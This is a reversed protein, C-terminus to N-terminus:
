GVVGQCAAFHAVHTGTGPKVPKVHLRGSDDRHDVAMTGGLQKEVALSRGNATTAWEIWTGCSRCAPM